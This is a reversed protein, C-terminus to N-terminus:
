LLKSKVNHARYSLRYLSQVIAQLTRPDCLQPALNEACTWVPGSAGGAEQVTPVPYKGTTFYPRPPQQGSLGM